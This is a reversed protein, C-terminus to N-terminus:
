QRKAPWGLLPLSSLKHPMLFPSAETDRGRGGQSLQCIQCCWTKKGPLGTMSRAVELFVGAAVNWSGAKESWGRLRLHPSCRVMAGTQIWQGGEVAKEAGGDGLYGIGKMTNRRRSVSLINEIQSFVLQSWEMAPEKLLIQSHANYLGPPAKENNLILFVFM